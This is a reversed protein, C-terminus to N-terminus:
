NGFNMGSNNAIQSFALKVSTRQSQEAIMPMSRISQDRYSFQDQYNIERDFSERSLNPIFPKIPLTSRCSNSKRLNSRNILEAEVQNETRQSVQPADQLNYKKLVTSVVREVNAEDLIQGLEDSDAKRQVELIKTSSLIPQPEDGYNRINSRIQSNSRNDIKYTERRSPTVSSHRIHRNQQAKYTAQKKEEEM